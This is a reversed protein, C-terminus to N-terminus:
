VSTWIVAKILASMPHPVRFEAVRRLWPTGDLVDAVLPHMYLIRIPRSGRDADLRAIVRGMVERGFPNFMFIATVDEYNQEAADGTVIDIPARRSRLTAANREAIRALGTDFEVGVSRRIQQTAFWCTARGKGCGLDAVVDDPTLALHRDIVTLAGYPM